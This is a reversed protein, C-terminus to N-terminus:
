AALGNLWKQLAETEARPDRDDFDQATAAVMGNHGRMLMYM